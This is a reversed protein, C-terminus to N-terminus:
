GASPLTARTILHPDSSSCGTGVVWIQQPGGAAPAVVIITAKSGRYRDVDVLRVRGGAAVRSVCGELTSVPIGSFFRSTGSGSPIGLPATRRTSRLLDGVEGALGQRGFGAKAAVPVFTATGHAARYTLAPGAASSAAASGGVGAASPAPSSLPAAGPAKVMPSDSASGAASRGADESSGATASSATGTNGSGALQSASYAGGAIVAAAATGALVRLAVPSHLVPRSARRASGSRRTTGPRRTTEPRQTTEPRRAPEPRGAGATARSPQAAEAALAAEIRATIDTPMPPAAAARLLQSVEALGSSAAACRDCGAVHARVRRTRREGLDGNRYRALVEAHIHRSM